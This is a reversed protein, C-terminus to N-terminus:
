SSHRTIMVMIVAGERHHGGQTNGRHLGIHLGKTSGKQLGRHGGRGGGANNPMDVYCSPEAGLIPQLGLTTCWRPLHVGLLLRVFLERFCGAIVAIWLM